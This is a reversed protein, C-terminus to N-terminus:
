GNTKTTDGTMGRGPEGVEERNDDDGIDIQKTTKEGFSRHEAM